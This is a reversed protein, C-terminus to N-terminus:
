IWSKAGHWNRQPRVRGDAGPSGSQEVEFNYSLAEHLLAITFRRGKLNILNLKGSSLIVLM